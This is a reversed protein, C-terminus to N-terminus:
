HYFLNICQKTNFWNQDALVVSTEVQRKPIDWYKELLYDKYSEPEILKFGNKKYFDIAWSAAKWTGILIPKNATKILHNLLKSGTGQRNFKSRVYAHRILLVDDKDQIGMVGTLHKSDSFGWFEVGDDIEKQLKENGMYPEKWRDDPIIGKYKQAGDNIIELISTFDDSNCKSIM